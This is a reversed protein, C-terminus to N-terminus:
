FSLKKKRQTVQLWERTSVIGLPELESLLVASFEFGIRNLSSSCYALQLLLNEKTTQDEISPLDQKLVGILLGVVALIFERILSLDKSNFINEFAIITSFCHERVVEINRKLYKEVNSKRIPALVQLENWIYQYRLQLYILKLEDDSNSNFPNIRKLYTMIKLISSLKLDTRLLRILGALMEKIELKIDQEIKTVLDIDSYRISLRKTHSSIELSESYHGQKVCALTLLPLELIDMVSEISQLIVAAGSMEQPQALPQSTHSWAGQETVKEYLEEFQNNFDDDFRTLLTEVTEHQALITDVNNITKKQIDGKYLSEQNDLEALEMTITDPRTLDEGQCIKELYLMLEEQYGYQLILQKTQDDQLHDLLVLM